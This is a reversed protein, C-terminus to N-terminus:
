SIVDRTALEGEPHYRFLFREGQQNILHAGFGRLAETILFVPNQEKVALATPHFQYFAMCDIAAGARSAMAVGDGTAILPNTTKSFVQGSGGTALYTVKSQIH